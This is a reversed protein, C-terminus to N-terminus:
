GFVYRPLMPVPGVLKSLQSLASKYDAGYALFFWDLSDKTPRPKVWDSGKDFLATKSDDLLYCGKRSLPGPDTVVKTSRNGLEGPVGGLNQDDTDGPKWQHRGSDDRWEIRLNNTAFPGSGLKYRLSLVETDLILWGEEERSQVPTHPWDDRNIVAVSPADVFAGSPSYELRVLAPALVQFRAPGRAFAPVARPRSSASPPRAPLIESDANVALWLPVSALLWACALRTLSHLRM